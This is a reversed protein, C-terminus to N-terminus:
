SSDSLSRCQCMAQTGREIMEFAPGIGFGPSLKGALPHCSNTGQQSPGSAESLVKRKEWLCYLVFECSKGLLFDLSRMERRRLIRIASFGQGRRSLLVTKEGRRRGHPHYECHGGKGALGLEYDM